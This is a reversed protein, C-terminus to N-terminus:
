LGLFPPNHIYPILFGRRAYRLPKHQKVAEKQPEKRNDKQTAKKQEKQEKGNNGCGTLGGILTVLCVFLGVRLLRKKM